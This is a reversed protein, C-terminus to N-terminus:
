QEIREGNFTLVASVYKNDSQKRYFARADHEKTFHHTRPRWKPFMHYTITVCWPKDVKKKRGKPAVVKADVQGIRKAKYENVEERYESM